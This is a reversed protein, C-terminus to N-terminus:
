CGGVRLLRWAAMRARGRGAGPADERLQRARLRLVTAVDATPVFPNAIAAGDCLSLAAVARGAREAVLLPATPMSSSDLTAIRELEVTDDHTAFRITVPDRAHELVRERVATLQPGRQQALRNTEEARRRVTELFLQSNVM